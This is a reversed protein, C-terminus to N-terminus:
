EGNAFGSWPGNGHGIAEPEGDCFVVETLADAADAMPTALASAVAREVEEAVDARLADVDVGHEAVAEVHRTSRTAGRGDRSSNQQSVYRADDHAGHGHMRMTMAEILTPGEGALAHERASAVARFVAEVDNGDVSARSMGYGDARRVPNVAFQGRTATSYAYQNNELLFIVPM